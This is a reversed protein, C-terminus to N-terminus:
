VKEELKELRETHDEYFRICEDELTHLVDLLADVRNDIENIRNELSEFRQNVTAEQFFSKMDEDLIIKRNNQDPQRNMAKMWPAEMHTMNRLMWASYQGYDIYVQALVEKESESFEDLSIQKSNGIPYALPNNGYKKAVDYLERIAPGHMWAEIDNDFMRHGTSALNIGQAYYCLKQMKLNTIGEGASDDELSLFYNAVDFVSLM